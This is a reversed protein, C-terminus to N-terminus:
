WINIPLLLDHVSLFAWFAKAATLQVRLPYLVRVWLPKICREPVIRLIFHALHAPSSCQLLSSPAPSFPVSSFQAAPCTTTLPSRWRRSLTALAFPRLFHVSREASTLFRPHSYQALGM